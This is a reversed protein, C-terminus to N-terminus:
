SKLYILIVLIVMNRTMQKNIDRIKAGSNVMGTAKMNVRLFHAISYGFFAILAYNLLVGFLYM